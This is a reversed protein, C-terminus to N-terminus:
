ATGKGPEIRYGENTFGDGESYFDPDISTETPTEYQGGSQKIYSWDLLGGPECDRMTESMWDCAGGSSDAKILLCVNLRYVKM